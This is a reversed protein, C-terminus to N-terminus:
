FGSWLITFNIFRYFYYKQGKKRFTKMTMVKNKEHKDMAHWFICDYINMPIFLVHSNNCNQNELQLPGKWFWRRSSQFNM